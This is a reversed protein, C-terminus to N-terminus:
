VPTEIGVYEGGHVGATILLTKGENKGCFAVGSIENIHFSKKDGKNILIDGIEM